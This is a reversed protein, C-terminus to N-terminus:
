AAAMPSETDNCLLSDAPIIGNLKLVEFAFSARLIFATEFWNDESGTVICGYGHNAFLLDANARDFQFDVSIPEDSPEATWSMEIVAKDDTWDEPKQYWDSGELQFAIHPKTTRLREELEFRKQQTGPKPVYVNAEEIVIKNM